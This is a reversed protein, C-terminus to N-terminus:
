FTFTALMQYTIVWRAPLPAILLDKAKVSPVRVGSVQDGSVQRGDTRVQAVSSKSCYRDFAKTLDEAIAYPDRGRNREAGAHFWSQRRAALRRLTLIAPYGTFYSRARHHCRHGPRCVGDDFGRPAGQEGLAMAVAPRARGAACGCISNVVVLVTGSTKTLVADVDAPTRLEQFGISTLEQRMPQVFEEPYM